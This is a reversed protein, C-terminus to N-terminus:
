QEQADDYTIGQVPHSKVMEGPKLGGRDSVIVQEGKKLGSVVEAYNTGQMGMVIRRPEVKGEPSVVDVWTQEGVHDVAQLPVALAHDKKDMTLLAEAYMGPLLLDGNNPVDVETHMTRTSAAVEVSFRAVRGIFNRDLSPVTVTVPDGIRIYRVYNEPVPIVLRYLNEQSLRVLPTAQTSSNGAQMLAGLNAFRQTVVGDFPATIKSYAYLAQDHTLKAQAM